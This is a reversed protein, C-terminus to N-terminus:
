CAATLIRYPDIANGGGPHYEFHLHPGYCRGTCGVRGIAQGQSVREGVEVYEASLHAYWWENGALDRLVIGIGWWSGYPTEVITGPLVARLGQGTDARIDDGQHPGGPRPDGFNDIVYSPGAVPCVIGRGSGRSARGAGRSVSALFNNLRTLEALKKSLARHREAARRAISTAREKQARLAKSEGDARRELVDIQELLGTEGEYLQELYAMRDLTEALDGAALGAQVTSLGGNMYLDSARHSVSQVLDDRRARALRLAREHRAIERHVLSAEREAAELDAGVARLTTKLQAIQAKIQAPTLATASPTGAIGALLAATAIVLTTATRIRM